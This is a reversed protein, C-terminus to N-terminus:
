YNEALAKFSGGKTDKIIVKTFTEPLRIATFPYTLAQSVMDDPGPGQDEVVVHLTDSFARVDKVVLSYGGTNRQGAFILLTDGTLYYGRDKKYSEAINKIKEDNINLAEYNVPTGGQNKSDAVSAPSTTATEAQTTPSSDQAKTQSDTGGTQPGACATLLLALGLSFGTKIKM